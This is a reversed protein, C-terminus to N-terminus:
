FEKLSWKKLNLSKVRATSSFNTLTKPLSKPGCSATIHPHNFNPIQEDLTVALGVKPNYRLEKVVVSFAGDYNNTIFDNMEPTCSGFRHALTCHLPELPLCYASGLLKRIKNELVLTDSESFFLGYYDVPFESFISM